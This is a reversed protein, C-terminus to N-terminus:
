QMWQTGRVSPILSSKFPLLFLRHLQGQKRRGASKQLCSDASYLPYLVFSTVHSLLFLKWLKLYDTVLLDIVGILHLQKKNEKKEGPQQILANLLQSGIWSKPCSSGSTGKLGAASPTQSEKAALFTMKTYYDWLTLYCFSFIANTPTM